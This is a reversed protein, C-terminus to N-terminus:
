ELSTLVDRGADTLQYAPWPAVVSYRTILGATVLRSANFMDDDTRAFAWPMPPACRRLFAIQAPALNSM